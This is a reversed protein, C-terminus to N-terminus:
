GTYQPAAAAIVGPAIAQSLRAHTTQDSGQRRHDKGEQRGMQDKPWGADLDPRPPGSDRLSARDGSAHHDTQPEKYLRPLEPLSQQVRLAESQASRGSAREHSEMGSNLGRLRRSRGLGM